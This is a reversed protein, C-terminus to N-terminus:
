WVSGEKESRVCERKVRTELKKVRKVPFKKAGINIQNKEHLSNKISM